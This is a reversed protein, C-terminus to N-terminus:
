KARESRGEPHNRYMGHIDEEITHGSFERLRALVIDRRGQLWEPMVDAWIAPTPLILIGPDVGWAAEFVFSQSGEWYVVQEKWRYEIRFGDGIVDAAAKVSARYRQTATTSSAQAGGRDEAGAM